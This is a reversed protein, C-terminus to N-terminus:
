RNSAAIAVLLFLVVAALGAWGLKSLKRRIRPFLVLVLTVILLIQWIVGGAGRIGPRSRDPRLAGQDPQLPGDFLLRDIRNHDHFWELHLLGPAACGVHVSLQPVTHASIPTDFADCVEAARLFGTFYRARDPEDSDSLALPLGVKKQCM